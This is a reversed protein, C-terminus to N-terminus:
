HHCHYRIATNKHTTTLAHSSFHALLCFDFRETFLKGANLLLFFWRKASFARVKIPILRTLIIGTFYSYRSQILFKFCSAGGHVNDCCWWVLFAGDKMRFIPFISFSIFRKFAASVVFSKLSLAFCQKKKAADAAAIADINVQLFQQGLFNDFKALVNQSKTYRTLTIVVVLSKLQAVSTNSTRFPSQEFVFDSLKSSSEHM